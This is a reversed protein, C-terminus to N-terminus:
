IGGTILFKMLETFTNKKQKYEDSQILEKNGVCKSFYEYDAKSMSMSNPYNFNDVGLAIVRKPAICEIEKALVKDNIAASNTKNYPTLYIDFISKNNADYFRQILKIMKDDMNDFDVVCIVDSNYNGFSNRTAFKQRIISFLSEVANMKKFYQEAEEREEANLSNLKETYDVMKNVGNKLKNVSDIYYRFLFDEDSISKVYIGNKKIRRKGLRFVTVSRPPISLGEDLLREDFFVGLMDLEYSIHQNTQNIIYINDYINNMDVKLKFDESVLDFDVTKDLVQVYEGSEFLFVDKSFVNVIEDLYDESSFNRFIPKSEGVSIIGDINSNILYIKSKRLM